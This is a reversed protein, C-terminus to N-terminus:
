SWTCTRGYSNFRRRLRLAMSFLVGTSCAQTEVLFLAADPGRGLVTHVPASHPM